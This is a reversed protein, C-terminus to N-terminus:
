FPWWRRSISKPRPKSITKSRTRPLRFTKSVFRRPPPESEKSEEASIVTRQLHLNRNMEANTKDRKPTGKQLRKALRYNSHKQKEMANRSQKNENAQLQIAYAESNQLEKLEKSEQAARLFAIEEKIANKKEKNATKKSEEIAAELEANYGASNHLPNNRTQKSRSKSGPM